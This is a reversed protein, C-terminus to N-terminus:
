KKTAQLAAMKSEVESIRAAAEQHGQRLAMNYFTSAEEYIHLRYDIVANKNKKGKITFDGDDAIAEFEQGASYLMDVQEAVTKALQKKQALITSYQGQITDKQSSITAEQSAVVEKLNNIQGQQIDITKRLDNITSQAIALDKSLKRVRTADRELQDLRERVKDLETSIAEAQTKEVRGGEVNIELATTKLNISALDQLISNLQETQQAYEDQLEQMEAALEKNKTESAELADRKVYPLKGDNCSSLLIIATLAPVVFKITKM